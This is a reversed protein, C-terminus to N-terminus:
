RYIDLDDFSVDAGETIYFGVVGDGYYESDYVSTVYQGNIYFYLSSGEVRVELQNSSTGSRIASSYTWDVLTPKSASGQSLISYTTAGPKILFAYAKLKDSSYQGHILLGFGGQSSTVSRATVQVTANKTYYSKSDPAFQGFPANGTSRMRYESYEYFTSGLNSYPGVEWNTTSFNDTFVLSRGSTASSSSNMNGASKNSSNTNSSSTNSSYNYSNSNYSEVVSTSSSSYAVYVAIVVVMIVVIGIVWPLPGSGTDHVQASSFSPSWKQVPPPPQTAVMTPPPAARRQAEQQQRYQAEQQQRYQAEHWRRATEASRQREEEQQTQRRLEEATRTPQLRAAAERRRREEEQQQQRLITEAESRRRAEEEDRRRQENAVGWQASNTRAAEEQRRREVLQLERALVTADAQRMNPDKALARVCVAELVSTVNLAAPLLPPEEYLHKTIVGTYTEAIFPPTGALMEYLMAGLAYVDSRADLPEARCQEPSMYYPTGIAVGTLTLSHESSLDRLKAIGFDVVKATEREHDDNPPQVIINDPKLDRHVINRRHAAGVGMCIDRMLLVAREPSLKGERKLLERLSPGEILEMVIYAPADEGRAEGYDYIVSVNPHHLQAAARAERRFREIAVGDAVYEQHLVKIAVEDGFLLRRSRYVAGMGGEGLKELLMYKTDLVRGVLPDAAAVTRAIGGGHTVSKGCADCFRAEARLIHGCQPCNM